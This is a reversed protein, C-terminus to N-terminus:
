LLPSYFPNHLEDLTVWAESCHCVGDKECRTVKYGQRLAEAAPVFAETCCLLTVVVMAIGNFIIALVGKKVHKFIVKVKCPTIVNKCETLNIKDCCSCM